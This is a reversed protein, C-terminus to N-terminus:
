MKKAGEGPPMGDIGDKMALLHSSNPISLLPPMNAANKLSGLKRAAPAPVNHGNSFNHGNAFSNNANSTIGTASTISSNTNAMTQQSMRARAELSDFQSQSQSYATPSMSHSRMQQEGGLDIGGLQLGIDGAGHPPAVLSKTTSVMGQGINVVEKRPSYVLTPASVQSQVNNANGSINAGGSITVASM